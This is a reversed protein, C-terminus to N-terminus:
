LAQNPSILCSHARIKRSVATRSIFTFQWLIQVRHMLGPTTLLCCKNRLIICEILFIPAFVRDQNICTRLWGFRVVKFVHNFLKFKRFNLLNLHLLELFILLRAFFKYIVDEIFQIFFVFVIPDFLLIDFILLWGLSFYYERFNSVFFRRHHCGDVVRFPHHMDLFFFLHVRQFIIFHGALIQFNLTGILVNLEILFNLHFLFFIVHLEKLYPISYLIGNLWKLNSM